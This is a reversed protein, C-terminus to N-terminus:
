AQIFLSVLFSLQTALLLIDCGPYNNRRDMQRKRARVKEKILARRLLVMFSILAIIDIAIALWVFLFNGTADVYAVCAVILVIGIVFAAIAPLREKHFRPTFRSEKSMHKDERNYSVELM